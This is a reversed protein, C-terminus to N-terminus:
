KSASALFEAVEPSTPYLAKAEAVARRRAAGSVTAALDLWAQWDGRDVSVASSFSASAAAVEGQDFQAEGLAKVPESSWPMWTRALAADSVALSYRKAATATQARALAGNGIVAVLAFAAMAVVAGSAALRGARPAAREGGDRGAVLLLCGALLGSLAIGSLEWDWDIANHALFAVYAGLIAPVLPVKRMRVAVVVPTLLVVSLLVLGVIGLESLTEVYLSHADRVVENASPSETWTRQFSGAGRGLLWHGRVADIAVAWMRARGNGNVNFLRSNLDATQLAKPPATTMFSDYGRKAVALPGGGRVLAFALVASACILLAAALARHARAALAVHREVWAVAPVVIFAGALALGIVALGLHRGERSADALLVHQDVLAKSRSALLVAVAPLIAFVSFAIVFRVRHPTVVLAVIAGAALALWAGRSFTFYLTLSLVTLSLAGLMRAGLAARPETVYGLAILIGIVAFAALANWYGVPDSLRYGSIPDNPAFTAANPLLRTWLSYACIASVAALLALGLWPLAVKRALVLFAGCGAVVVLGRELELVSQAPDISWTISLGVWATFALLAALFLVDRRGADTVGGALLWVLAVGLLGLASWGFSTPFYGGQDQVILVVALVVFLGPAVTSELSARSWLGRIGDTEPGGGVRM